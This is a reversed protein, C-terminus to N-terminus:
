GASEIQRASRKRQERHAHALYSGAEVGAQDGLAEAISKCDGAAAAARGERTPHSRAAEAKAEEYSYIKM